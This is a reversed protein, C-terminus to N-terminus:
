RKRELKGDLVSSIAKCAMAQRAREYEVKLIDMHYSELHEMMLAVTNNFTTGSMVTSCYPCDAMYLADDSM